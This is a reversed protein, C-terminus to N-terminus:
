VGGCNNCANWGDAGPSFGLKSGCYGCPAVLSELAAKYAGMYIKAREPDYPYEPRPDRPQGEILQARSPSGICDETPLLHCSPMFLLVAGNGPIYSEIYAVDNEKPCPKLCKACIGFQIVEIYM